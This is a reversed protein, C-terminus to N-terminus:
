IQPLGERATSGARPVSRARAAQQPTWPSATGAKANGHQPFSPKWTSPDDPGWGADQKSPSPERSCRPQSLHPYLRPPIMSERSSALLLLTAKLAFTFLLPTHHDGSHKEEISLLQQWSSPISGPQSKNRQLDENSM